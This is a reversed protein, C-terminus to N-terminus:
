IKKRLILFYIEPIKMIAREIAIKPLNKKIYNDRISKIIQEYDYSIMEDNMNKKIINAMDLFIDKGLESNLENIVNQDINNENISSANTSGIQKKYNFYSIDNEENNSLEFSDNKDNNTNQYDLILKKQEFYDNLDKENKLNKEELKKSSNSYKSYSNKLNQNELFQDIENM